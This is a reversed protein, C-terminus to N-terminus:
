AVREASQGILAVHHDAVVVQVGAQHFARQPRRRARHAEAVVVQLMELAAQLVARRVLLDEDDGFAHEAHFAVDGVQAADQLQGLGVARAHVHVFRVADAHQAGGARARGLM